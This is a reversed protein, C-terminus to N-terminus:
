KKILDVAGQIGLYAIVITFAQQMDGQLAFYISGLVAVLFKRSLFKEQINELM